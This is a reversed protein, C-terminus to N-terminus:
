IRLRQTKLYLDQQSPLSASEEFVPHGAQAQSGPASSLLTGLLLLQLKFVDSQSTKSSKQSQAASKSSFTDSYFAEAVNVIPHPKGQESFVPSLDHSHEGHVHGTNGLHQDYINHLAHNLTHNGMAEASLPFLFALAILLNLLKKFM